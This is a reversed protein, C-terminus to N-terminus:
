VCHPMRVLPVMDLSSYLNLIFVQVSHERVESRSFQSKVIQVVLIPDSAKIHSYTSIELQVYDGANVYVDPRGSVKVVTKNRSGIIRFYDGVTRGPVPVTHFEVGWSSVPPIQEVLHDRSESNGVATRVNGSFVAVPSDSVIHSGTLDGKSQIQFTQYRQLTILLTDGNKYSFGEYTVEVITGNRLKPLTIQVNTGDKVGVIGFECNTTPPFYSVTYYETGLTDTPYALFADNSFLEMNVAYVVVEKDSQVLLAQYAFGSGAHRLTYPISFKKITNAAISTSENVVMENSGPKMVRPSTLNVQVNDYQSTVFLQLDFNAPNEVVNDMYMILFELGESDVSLLFCIFMHSGRTHLISM